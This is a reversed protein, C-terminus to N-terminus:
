VDAAVAAPRRPTTPASFGCGTVGACRVNEAARGTCAFRARATTRAFLLVKHCGSLVYVGSLMQRLDHVLKADRPVAQGLGYHDRMHADVIDDAAAPGDSRVRGKSDSLRKAHGGSKQSFMCLIHLRSTARALVLTLAILGSALVDAQVARPPEASLAERCAVKRRQAAAQM